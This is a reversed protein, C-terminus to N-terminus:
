PSTTVAACRRSSQSRNALAILGLGWGVVVAFDHHSRLALFVAVRYQAIVGDYFPWRDHHSCLAMHRSRLALLVAVRAPRSAHVHTVTEHADHHHRLTQFLSRRQHITSPM